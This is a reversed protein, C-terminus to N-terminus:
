RYTAPPQRVTNRVSTINLLNFFDIMAEVSHRDNIQFTKAVRTDWLNVRGLRGTQEEVPVVVRAGLANRMLAERGYYDGAQSRFSSSFMVGYPLDYQGSLKLSHYWTATEEGM